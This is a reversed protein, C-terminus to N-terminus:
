GDSSMLGLAKRAPRVLAVDRRLPKRQLALEAHERITVPRFHRRITDVASAVIALKHAAPLNMGPFFSLGQNDDGGLFDLPHLLLSPEIRFVRCLQIAQWFYFRALPASFRSLYLLYSLHIPLKVLPMTTVPIEALTGEPLDWEFPRLPRFGDRFRGFLAKRQVRQQRNLSSHLFYYARALPGLFTPFLTADYRYERQALLRLVSESVSFGPGRFGVTRAGTAQFIAAESQEFENLLQEASYEHLWPEHHFSHNAIEHGAEAISRLAQHNSSLAADQGVVFVTIRLKRQELFNLIRPVVLDLYSPHLTWAADGHAKLYAWLNDLDLSISAISSGM